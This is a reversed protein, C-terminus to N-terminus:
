RLMQLATITPSALHQCLYFLSELVALVVGDAMIKVVAVAAVELTLLELLELAVVMVLAVAVLVALVQLVEMHVAVVVVLM